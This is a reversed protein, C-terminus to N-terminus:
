LGVKELRGGGRGGCLGVKELRGKGIYDRRRLWAGEEEYVMTELEELRGEKKLNLRRRGAEVSGLGKGLGERM